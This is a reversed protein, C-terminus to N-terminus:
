CGQEEGEMHQVILKHGLESTKWEPVASPNSRAPCSRGAVSSPSVCVQYHWVSGQCPRPLLSEWTLGPGLRRVINDGQVKVLPPKNLKPNFVTYFLSSCCLPAMIAKLEPVAVSNGLFNESPM